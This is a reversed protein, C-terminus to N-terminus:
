IRMVQVNLVLSPVFVVCLLISNWQVGRGLCRKIMGKLVVGGKQRIGLCKNVGEQFAEGVGEGLM